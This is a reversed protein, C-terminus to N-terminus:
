ERRGHLLESYFPPAPGIAETKSREIYEDYTVAELTVDAPPEFFWDPLPVGPSWGLYRVRMESATNRYYRYVEVPLEYEGDTVWVENRGTENTLRYRSAEHGSEVGGEVKEAGAEILQAAENGFPRSRQADQRRATPSREISVGEKNLLDIIIYRNENVLTIVPRGAIVTQSRMRNGKAWLYEVLNGSDSQTLRSAAWTQVPQAAAELPSLLIWLLVPSLFHTRTVTASRVM